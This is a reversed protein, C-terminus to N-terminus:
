QPVRQAVPVPAPAPRPSCPPPLPPSTHPTTLPSKPPPTFPTSGPQPQDFCCCPCAHMQSFTTVLKTVVKSGGAGDDSLSWSLWHCSLQPQDLYAAAPTHSHQTIQPDPPPPATPSTTHLPPPMISSYAQNLHAAASTHKTPPPLLPQNRWCPDQSASDLWRPLLNVGGKKKKLLTHPLPLPAQAPAPRPSCPAM